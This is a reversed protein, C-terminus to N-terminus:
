NEAPTQPPKRGDSEAQHAAKLRDKIAKVVLHKYNEYGRSWSRSRGDSRTPWGKPIPVSLRDLEECIERLNDDDVWPPGYKAVVAAAKRHNEIDTKPGRKGARIHPASNSGERNWIPVSQQDVTPTPSPETTRARFAPDESDRVTINTQRSQSLLQRQRAEIRRDAEDPTLCCSEYLEQKFQHLSRPPLYFKRALPVTAAGFEGSPTRILCHGTQLGMVLESARWRQEELSWHEPDEEWFPTHRVGPQDTISTNRSSGRETSQSEARSSGQSHSEDHGFGRTRSNSADNGRQVNRSVNHGKSKGVSISTSTTNGVSRGFTEQSSHTHAIGATHAHSHTHSSSSATTLSRSADVAMGTTTGALEGEPSQALTSSTGESESLSQSHTTGRSSSDTDTTSESETESYGWSSSETESVSHSRGSSREHSTTVTMGSSSGHSEHSGRSRGSATTWNRGASQSQNISSSTGRGLSQSSGVSTTKSTQRIDEILHSLHRRMRKIQPEALGVFLDDALEQADERDPTAFIIKTRCNNKIAKYLRPDEKRFQALHQFALFFHLGKQRCQELAEGLEPVVFRAAEDIYLYFPRSGGKRMLATEYFETLFLTGILRQQELSLYRSPKLNVLVIHGEDMAKAFDLGNSGIGMMNRITRSCLFRMLRNEVSEIQEMFEGPRYLSLQELKRRIFSDNLGAMFTTRVEQGHQDLLMAVELITLGCELLVTFLVRLWKELRPTQDSGYQGWAMLTARVRRDVQVSLDGDRRTFPNYPLVWTGDSPNCLIIKPLKCGIARRYCCYEL